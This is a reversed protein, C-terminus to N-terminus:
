KIMGSAGNFLKLAHYMDDPTLNLYQYLTKITNPNEDTELLLKDQPIAELMTRGKYRLVERMGISFMINHEQASRIWEPSTYCGHIIWLPHSPYRCSLELLRGYCGVCHVLLPKDFRMSLEIQEVFCREQLHMNEKFSKDLGCEGIMTAGHIMEVFNDDVEVNNVDWPHIGVSYHGFIAKDYNGVYRVNYLSLIDEDPWQTHTHIDIYM